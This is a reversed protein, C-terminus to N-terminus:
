VWGEGDILEDALYDRQATRGLVDYWRMPSIGNGPRKVTINEQTFVDGRAIDTLAVISKRAVILNKEESATRRKVGDGLAAEIHRVAAVMRRLEEPELSARHDPGEMTKDLTFHKEIVAAGLAAAAIPVEIGLTHDSYGVPKGLERAMRCMARLNVDEFPTPYETNCHLLTIDETGSRELVAVASRIEEMGCMGTSLIVRRGTKGIRELYPLNTVEGSPVKWFDLGLSELFDISELDFPTSAFGVGTEECYRKLAAFDEWTLALKSVMELQSQEAGTTQKQYEAKPAYKSVLKDPIFTQFKIYDAGAKKAELVMKRALEISGNHNVGAEAIILVSM